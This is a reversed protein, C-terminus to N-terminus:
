GQEYHSHGKKRRGLPTAHIIESLVGFQGEMGIPVGEQESVQSGALVVKFRSPEAAAPFDIVFECHFIEFLNIANKSIQSSSTVDASDVQLAKPALVGARGSLM